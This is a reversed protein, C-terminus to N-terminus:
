VNNKPAPGGNGRQRVLLVLGYLLLPHQSWSWCLKAVSTLQSTITLTKGLIKKKRYVIHYAALLLGLCVHHVPHCLPMNGSSIKISHHLLRDAIQIQM